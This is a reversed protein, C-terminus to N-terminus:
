GADRADSTSSLRIEISTPTCEITLITTIQGDTKVNELDCKHVEFLKLMYEKDIQLEM